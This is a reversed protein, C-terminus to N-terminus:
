TWIRCLLDLSGLDDLELPKGNSKLDHLEGREMAERIKEEAIRYLFDM